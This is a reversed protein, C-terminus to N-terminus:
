SLMTAVDDLSAAHVHAADCLGLPDYHIAQMGAALAGEVDARVSDGVHVVQSADVDLARAAAAFMRGDPKEVGVNASDVVGDVLSALGLSRLQEAVTGDSDSTVAVRAGGERLARLLSAARPDVVTWRRRNRSLYTAAEEVVPASVGAVTVYTAWYVSLSGAADFAAVGRYHAATLTAPDVAGFSRLLVAMAEADPLVLVGGFDLSVGALVTV